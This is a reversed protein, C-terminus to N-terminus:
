AHVHQKMSMQPMLVQNIIILQDRSYLVGREGMCLHSAFVLHGALNRQSPLIEAITGAIFLSAMLQAQPPPGKTGM